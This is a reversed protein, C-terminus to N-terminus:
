RTMIVRTSEGDSLKVSQMLLGGQPPMFEQGPVSWMIGTTLFYEGAPLGTFSFNGQADCVSTKRAQKYDASDPIFQVNASGVTTYGSEASGYLAILRERGYGSKPQLSVELGACTRPQGGRTQFFAQGNIAGTGKESFWAVESPDFTTTLAVQRPPAPAFTACGSLLLFGLPLVFNKM